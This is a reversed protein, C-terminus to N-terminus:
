RRFSLSYEGMKDQLIAPDLDAIINGQDDYQAPGFVQEIKSYSDRTHSTFSPRQQYSQNTNRFNQHNQDHQQNAGGGSSHGQQQGSRNQKQDNAERETTEHHHSEEVKQNQGSAGKGSGMRDFVLERSKKSFSSRRSPDSNKPAFPSSDDGSSEREAKRKKAEEALARVRLVAASPAGLPPQVPVPPTSSSSSSSQPSETLGAPPTSQIHRMLPLFLITSTLRRM